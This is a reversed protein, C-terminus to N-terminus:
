TLKGLRKKRAHKIGLRIMKLKKIKDKEYLLIKILQKKDATYIEKYFEKDEHYLLYNNRFRYYCRVANHNSPQVKRGIFTRATPSGIKHKICIENIVAIKKGVAYFQHCLDFDVSDIFLEERFGNIQRYAKLNIFNGSTIYHKVEVLGCQRSQVDECNLAIIGYDDANKASLYTQIDKWKDVPFVSDQDMTLCFDSDNQLARGVGVRLAKAIGQNGGMDVICINDVGQLPALLKKDACDSNDVVFLEDLLVAYDLINNIQEETPQYLVVVGDIKM